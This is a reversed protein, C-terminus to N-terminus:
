VGKTNDRAALMADAMQYSWKALMRRVDAADKAAAKDLFASMGEATSCAQMAAAAFYDRISVGKFLPIVLRDDSRGNADISLREGSPYAPESGSDIM